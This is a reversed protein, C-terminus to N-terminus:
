CRGRRRRRTRRKEELGRLKRFFGLSHPVDGASADPQRDPAKEAAESQIHSKEELECVVRVREALCAGAERLQGVAKRLVISAQIAVEAVSKPSPRTVRGALQM